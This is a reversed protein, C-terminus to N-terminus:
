PYQQYTEKNAYRIVPNEAMRNIRYEPIIKMAALSTVFLGAGINQDRPNVASLSSKGPLLCLSTKQLFIRIGYLM